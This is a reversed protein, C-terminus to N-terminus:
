HESVSVDTRDKSILLHRAKRVDFPVRSSTFDPINYSYELADYYRRPNRQPLLFPKSFHGNDDIHSIYLRTYLGDDRRSSFVVWSSNSSWNHFSEPRDSNLEEINRLSGNSLDYLYLDAEEHWLPFTGFDTGALMIYKGDYSPRATSFSKGLAPGDILTDIQSGFTGNSAHFDIACISYQNGAMESPLNGAKSVSFFLRGGDASFAPYTEFRKDGKLLDCLLVKHEDPEYVLLDSAQDYVEVKKHTDPYFSIKTKNVSYAVYKGSPHWSPYVFFGGTQDTITNLCEMRGDHRLLTASHAGRVHLSFNTPDTRSPTHCNVCGDDTMRSDLITRQRFNSLDREYIGMHGFSQYGAMILRYTLGYDIPDPSVQIEFPLYTKWGSEDKSSVRFYLSEGEHNSLMNHWRGLPFRVTRCGRVRMVSNGSADSVDVCIAKCSADIGFDLPAISSPVTVGAYDPWVPADVGVTEADKPSSCAAMLVAAVAIHLRNRIRM